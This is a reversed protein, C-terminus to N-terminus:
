VVHGARVGGTASRYEVVFGAGILVVGPLKRAINELRALVQVGEVVVGCVGGGLCTVSCSAGMATSRSSTTALRRNCNPHCLEGLNKQKNEAARSCVAVRRVAVGDHHLLPTGRCLM